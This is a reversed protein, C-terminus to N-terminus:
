WKEESLINNFTKCVTLCRLASISDFYNIILLRILDNPLKLFQNFEEPKEVEEGTEM